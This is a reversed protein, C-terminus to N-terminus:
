ANPTPNLQSAVGKVGQQVEHLAKAREGMMFAALATFVWAAVRSWFAKTASSDRDREAEVSLQDYAEGLAVEAQGWRQLLPQNDQQPTGPNFKEIQNDADRLRFALCQRGSFRLRQRLNKRIHCFTDM